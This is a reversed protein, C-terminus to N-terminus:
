AVNWSLRKKTPQLHQFVLYFLKLLLELHTDCAETALLLMEMTSILASTYASGATPVGGVGPAVMSVACTM